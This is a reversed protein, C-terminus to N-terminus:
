EETFTGNNTGGDLYINNPTNSIFKYGSGKLTGKLYIAGGQYNSKNNQFIAMTADTGILEVTGTSGTAADRGTGSEAEAVTRGDLVLTGKNDVGQITLTAGNAVVFMDKTALGSGRYITIDKREPNQITIDTTIDTTINLQNEVEADNMVIITTADANKNAEEVAEELTAFYAGDIEAEASSHIGDNLSKVATIGTVESGDPTVWFPTVTFDVGYYEEAVDVVTCAKFYKSANCFETPEYELTKGSTANVAYLKKYVKNSVKTINAPVGDGDKDYSVKFGAQLYNLSDVTTVFRISGTADNTQNEDLLNGSIQAKVDLVHSPVFLAYAGENPVDASATIANQSDKYQENKYWGAFLYDEVDTPYSYQGGDIFGKVEDASYKVLEYECPYFEVVFEGMGMWEDDTFDRARVVIYDEYVSVFLGEAKELQTVTGGDNTGGGRSYETRKMTATNVMTPYNENAAKFANKNDMSFHTHGHFSVINDKYDKYIQNLREESNTGIQDGMGGAEETEKNYTGAVTRGIGQHLFVFVPSDSTATHAELKAEFWDLQEASLYAAGRTRDPNASADDTGLFIAYMDGVKVDYYPKDSNNRKSADTGELFIAMREEVTRTTAPINSWSKFESPTMSSADAVNYFDHNGIGYHMKDALETYGTDQAVKAIIDKNAQYEEPLGWEVVDGNVFIGTTEPSISVIDRLADEYRANTFYKDYYTETSIHMDSIVNFTYLPTGLTKAVEGAGEPLNATAFDPNEIIGTIAYVLIRDAGEPVKINSPMDFTATKSTINSVSGIESYEPLKGAANGWYIDFRDPIDEVEKIEIKVQGDARWAIDTSAIYEATFTAAAAEKIAKEYEEIENSTVNITCGTANVTSAGTLTETTTACNTLTTEHACGGMIGGSTDVATITGSNASASVTTTGCVGTAAVYGIIGGAKGSNVIATVDGENLCSKVQFGGFGNDGQGYAGIIGGAAHIHTTANGAISEIAGSNICKAIIATADSKKLGIGKGLMGGAVTGKITGENTCNNILLIGTQVDSTTINRYIGLMGGAGGNTDQGNCTINGTNKNGTLSVRNVTFADGLMGGASIGAGSTTINGSNVCNAITVSLQLAAGNQPDVQGVLGGVGIVRGGATDTIIDGRNFCDIITLSDSNTTAEHIGVLGGVHSGKVTGGSTQTINSTNKCKLLTGKTGLFGVLGGVYSSATETVTLSGAAKINSLNVEGYAASILGGIKKSEAGGITITSDLTVNTVTIAKKVKGFAGGVYPLNQGSINIEGAVTINNATLTGTVTGAIGGITKTDDNTGVRPTSGLDISGTFSVNELVTNKETKAIVGGIVGEIDYGSGATINVSSHVNELTLTGGSFGHRIVPAWHNNERSDLAVTGSFNLNRVTAAATDAGGSILPVGAGDYIITYGNGEVEITGSTRWGTILCWANCNSGSKYINDCDTSTLTIDNALYFKDKTSNDIFDQVSSVRTWSDDFKSFDTNKAGANTTGASGTITDEVATDENASSVFAPGATSIIGMLMTVILLISVPKKMVIRASIQKWKRNLM